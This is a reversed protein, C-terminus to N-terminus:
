NNTILKNTLYQEVEDEETLLQQLTIQKKPPRGGKKGNETKARYKKMDSDLNPKILHFALKHVPNTFEPLEDNFTYEFIARFVVSFTEDDFDKLATYYSNKIIVGNINNQTKM